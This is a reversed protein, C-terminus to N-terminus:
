KLARHEIYQLMFEKDEPFTLDIDNLQEPTKWDVEYILGDPDHIIPKGGKIEVEFYTVHYEVTGFARVDTDQRKMFKGLVVNKWPRM